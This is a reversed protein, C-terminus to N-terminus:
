TIITMGTDVTTPKATTRDVTTPNVTVPDLNYIYTYILHFVLSDSISNLKGKDKRCMYFPTNPRTSNSEYQCLGKKWWSCYKSTWEFSGCRPDVSCHSQCVSINSRAASDFHKYYYGWDTNNVFEDWNCGVQTCDYGQVVM